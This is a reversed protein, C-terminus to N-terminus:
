RIAKWISCIRGKQVEDGKREQYKPLAVLPDVISYGPLEEESMRDSEELAVLAANTEEKTRNGVNYAVFTDTLCYPPPPVNELSQLRTRQLVLQLFVSLSNHLERPLRQLEFTLARAHGREFIENFLAYEARYNTLFASHRSM